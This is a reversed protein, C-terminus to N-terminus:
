ALRAIRAVAQMNKVQWKCTILWPVIANIYNVIKNSIWCSKLCTGSFLM